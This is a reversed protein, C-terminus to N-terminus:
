EFIAPQATSLIVDRWLSDDPNIVKREEVVLNIPLYVFKSHLISILMNTKGCMAGHVANRGLRACLLSDYPNASVSRVMYSPDIYIMKHNVGRNDLEKSLEDRLFLGIDALKKNGSADKINLDDLLDQGAGEAVVIVAHHKRELRKILYELVSEFKFPIEPILIINVDNTALSAHAAIFGSHRGMLKVLGIGNEASQAEVHASKIAKVAQGVATEFGFTTDVYQLDNDITKPIGVVAIKLGRKKVEKAIDSTGKQTGDGGIVVLISLNMRDISDVIEDTRDGGGRSSGLITGGMNHIDDVVDIDLNMPELAYEPLLGHYGNRIGYINKVGYQIEFTRVVARIVNNLGPSLGGCTLIAVKVKSPEFYIKERAGALEVSINELKQSHNKEDLNKKIEFLVREKEFVYNARNDNIEKSLTIPSQIKTEGLTDIKFRNEM